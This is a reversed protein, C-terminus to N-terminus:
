RGRRGRGEGGGRPSSSQYSPQGGGGSRSEYRPSSRASRGSSGGWARSPADYRPTAQFRPSEQRFYRPSSEQRYSPSERRYSPMSQRYSPTSEQRFSRPAEQLRGESGRSFRSTDRDVGSRPASSFRDNSRSVNGRNSERPITIVTPGASRPSDLEGRPITVFPPTEQGRATRGRAASEVSGRNSDSPITVVAAGSRPSDSFTRPITMFRSNSQDDSPGRNTRGQRGSSGRSPTAPTSDDKSRSPPMVSENSRRENNSSSNGRSESGRSTRSEQNGRTTRDAPSRDTSGRGTEIRSRGSESGAQSRSESSRTAERGRGFRQWGGASGASDPQRENERVSRGTESRNSNTEFSRGTARRDQARGSGASGTVTPGRESRGRSALVTPDTKQVMDRMAREGDSFSTRVEPPTRRAFMRESRDTRGSRNAAVTRDSARLSERTPVAPPNGAVLHADRLLSEDVRSGQRTRGSVFDNTQVATISNRLRPNDFANRINSGHARGRGLPPVAGDGYFNYVNTVNRVNVINVSNYRYRYRGHWPYYYDGPGVPLWGLSHYGFGFGFSFHFKGAGFGFFTVFAPAWYPRYHRHVPGPWWYWANSYCFWRGYHYPAWGWPEYSVWTWGWYPEWVWRGLRYPAWYPDIGIPAWCWGYGPVHHWRGYRDLDHAGTYYPSTYGWSSANKVVDDRDENWEDWDDRGPANMVRYEPSDQTGRVVAMDGKRVRTTGESTFVEAEGKRVIVETEGQENVQIRYRGEKLPRVAINPTDIEVDADNDKMVTLNAVGQSLQVQIRSRSLDAIRAESDQGLRLINAYDLQLETRSGRGTAIKDGSVVPANVTLAVWDGSDGRMSTVDGNILSVRAVGPEPEAGALLPIAAIFVLTLIVFVGHDRSRM